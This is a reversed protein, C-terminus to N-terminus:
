ASGGQSPHPARLLLLAQMGELMKEESCGRLRGGGQGKERNARERSSMITSKM